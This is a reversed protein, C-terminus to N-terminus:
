REIRDTARSAGRTTTTEHNARSWPGFLWTLAELLWWFVRLALRVTWPHGLIYKM